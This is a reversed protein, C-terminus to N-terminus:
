PHILVVTAADKRAEINGSIAKLNFLTGGKPDVEMLPYTRAVCVGDPLYHARSQM